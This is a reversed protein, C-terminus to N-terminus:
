STAGSGPSRKLIALGLHILGSPVYFFLFSLPASLLISLLGFVRAPIATGDALVPIPDGGLILPVFGAFIVNLGAFLYALVLLVIRAIGLLRYPQKMM